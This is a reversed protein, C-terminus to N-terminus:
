AEDDDADGDADGDVDGDDDADVDVDADDGDADADADADADDEDDDEDDDSVKQDDDENQADVESDADNDSAAAPGNEVPIDAVPESVSATEDHSVITAIVTITTQYLDYKKRQVQVVIVSGIQIRSMDIADDHIDKPIIIELVRYESMNSALLGYNNMNEVKCRIVAGVPPNCVSAKFKVEYIFSGDMATADLVADSVSLVEVSRPRIYGYKTCMGEVKNQLLVDISTRVHKNQYKPPVSIRETLVAKMFVDCDDQVDRATPAAKTSAM